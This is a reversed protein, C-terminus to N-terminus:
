QCDSGYRSVADEFDSQASQVSSFESSCDDHGKSDSVCSTYSRIATAIDSVASNYNQIADPCEDTDAKSGTPPALVLAVAFAAYAIRM